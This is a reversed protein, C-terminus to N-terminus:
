EVIRIKQWSGVEGTGQCERGRINRRDTDNAIKSKEKKGERLCLRLSFYLPRLDHKLEIGWGAIKVTFPM